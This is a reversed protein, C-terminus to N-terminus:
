LIPATRPRMAFAAAAAVGSAGAFLWLAVDYRGSLALSWVPPLPGVAAGLVAALFGVGRISGMNSRGFAEAYGAAQATNLSGLAAGLAVAYAWGGIATHATAAFAAAAALAILFLPLLRRVGVRDILYGSAPIAIAQVAAMPALLAVAAGRELGGVTLISVQHLLLATGVMNSLFGATTLVWFTRTRMAQGLTVRPEAVSSRELKSTSTLDPRLGFTEPRDRFLLVLLPVVLFATVGGLAVYITRWGLWPLLAEIALPFIVGGLATGGVVAAAAVGRQRVFWLNIVHQSLLTLGGVAAGRLLAFALTLELANRVLAMGACAAALATGVVFAALRVGHRDIWHGVFPTPLIGLLTGIAYAAAAASRSAGLDQIIPDFFASVGVTQGPTTMFAGLAGAGLIIWGYEFPVSSM